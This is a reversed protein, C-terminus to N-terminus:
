LHEACPSHHMGHLALVMFAPIDVDGCRLLEHAREHQEDQLMFYFRSNPRRARGRCQIYATADNLAGLAVVLACQPFDMGESGVATAFLM